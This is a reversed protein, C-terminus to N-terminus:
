PLLLFREECQKHMTFSFDPFEPYFTRVANFAGCKLDIQIDEPHLLINFRALSLNIADSMKVYTVETM